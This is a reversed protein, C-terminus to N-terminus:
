KVSTIYAIDEINGITICLYDTPKSNHIYIRAESQYAYKIRKTFPHLMLPSSNENYYSVPSCNPYLNNSSCYKKIRNIFEKPNFIVVAYEGFDLMRKDVLYNDYIAYMCYLYGTYTGKNEYVVVDNIVLDNNPFKITNHNSVIDYCEYLDGRLHEPNSREYNRYFDINNMYIEGYKLMRDLHERKGFKILAQIRFASM